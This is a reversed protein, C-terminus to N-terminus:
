LVVLCLCNSSYTSKTSMITWIFVSLFVTEVESDIFQKWWFVTNHDVYQALTTVMNYAFARFYKKFIQSMKSCYYDRLLNKFLLIIQDFVPCKMGQMGCTRCYMQQFFAAFLLVHINVFHMSPLVYWHMLHGTKSLCFQGAKWYDKEWPGHTMPSNPVIILRQSTYKPTSSYTM